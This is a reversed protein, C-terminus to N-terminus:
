LILLAALVITFHSLYIFVLEHFIFRRKDVYTLAAFLAMSLALALAVASGIGTANKWFVFALLLMGVGMCQAAVVHLYLTKGRAPLLAAVVVGAYELTWAGVIWWTHEAAPAIFVYVAVAFLSSCILLTKRFRILLAEELAARESLSKPATSAHTSVAIKTLSVVSGLTAAVSLLLAPNM